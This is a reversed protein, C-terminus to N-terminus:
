KNRVLRFGIDGRQDPPGGYYRFASQYNDSVSNYGGGRLVRSGGTEPGTPDTADGASYGTYWDSCWEWVNGSMDYLGFLNATKGGVDHHNGSSNGNYWCYAGDVTDGTFYHLPAAKAPM